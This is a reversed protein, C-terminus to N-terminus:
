VFAVLDVVPRENHPMLDMIGRAAIDRQPRELAPPGDRGGSPHRRARAPEPGARLIRMARERRRSGQPLGRGGAGDRPPTRPRPAAGDDQNDKREYYVNAPHHLPALTQLVPHLPADCRRAGPMAPEQTVAQEAKEIESRVDYLSYLLGYVIYRERGTPGRAHQCLQPLTGPNSLRLTRNLLGTYANSKAITAQLAADPARYRDKHRPLRSPRGGFRVGRVPPFPTPGLVLPM